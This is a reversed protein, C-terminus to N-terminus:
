MFIWRLLYFRNSMSTNWYKEIKLPLPFKGAQNYNPAWLRLQRGYESDQETDCLRCADFSSAPLCSLKQTQAMKLVDTLINYLGAENWKVGWQDCIKSNFSFFLLPNQFGTGWPAPACSQTSFVSKQLGKRPLLIWKWMVEMYSHVQTATGLEGVCSGVIPIM